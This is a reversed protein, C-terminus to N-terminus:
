RAGPRQPMQIRAMAKVLFWFLAGAPVVILVIIVVDTWTSAVLAQLCFILLVVGLLAELGLVAWYRARWCGWAMTYMLASFAIVGATAPRKGEITQGAAFLVLNATAVLFTVLAGITVALPREGEELPKLRARAAADKQESRSPRPQAAVRAAQPRPAPHAPAEARRKRSRKGM